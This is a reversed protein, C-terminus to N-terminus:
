DHRLTQVPDIRAARSAHYLAAVVSIATGFAIAAFAIWPPLYFVDVKPVDQRTMWAPAIISAVRSVALGLLIGASSGLVGIMAAEALFLARM